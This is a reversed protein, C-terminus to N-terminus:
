AFRKGGLIYEAGATDSSTGIWAFDDSSVADSLQSELYADSLDSVNLGEISGQHSALESTSLVNYEPYRDLASEVYAVYNTAKLQILDAVSGDASLIQMDWGPQTASVALEAHQGPDLHYEGVWEGKNLRDRVSVEFLKGKWPQLLGELQEGSYNGVDEIDLNPFALRFSEQLEPTLESPDFGAGIHLGMVAASCASAEIFTKNRGEQFRKVLSNFTRQGTNERTKYEGYLDDLTL